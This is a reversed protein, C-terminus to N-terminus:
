QIICALCIPCRNTITLCKKFFEEYDDCDHDHDHHNKDRDEANIKENYNESNDRYYM